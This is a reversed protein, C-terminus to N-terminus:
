RHRHVGEGVGRKGGPGGWAAEGKKGKGRVGKGKRSPKQPFPDNEENFGMPLEGTEQFTSAEAMSDM